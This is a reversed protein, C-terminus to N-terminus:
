WLLVDRDAVPQGHRRWFARDSVQDLVSRVQRDDGVCQTVRASLVLEIEFQERVAKGRQRFTVAVALTVTYGQEVLEKHDGSDVALRDGLLNRRQIPDTHKDRPIIQHIQRLDVESRQDVRGRELARHARGEGLVLLEVRQAGCQAVRDPGLQRGGLHELAKCCARPRLVHVCCQRCM